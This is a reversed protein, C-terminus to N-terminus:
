KNKLEEVTKQLDEIQKQQSDITQQQSNVKDSLENLKKLIDVGDVILKKTEIIGARIKASVLEAFAGIRTIPGGAASQSANRAPSNDQSVLQYNGNDGVIKLEGTSTFSLPAIQASISAIEAQQDQIAKALLPTLKGYDAMWYGDPTTPLTVAEPYVHYLEQAIFGTHTTQSPDSIFKFNRVNVKMLDSLGFNTPVIDKKLRVDSSTNYATLNGGSFTISGVSTQDYRGFNMLTGTANGGAVIGVGYGLLSGYTNAFTAVYNLAVPSVVQLPTTPGTTGIGVKGTDMVVSSSSNLPRLYLSGTAAQVMGNAGDTTYLYGGYAYINGIVQLKQTPATTGIGVNGSSDIRLQETANTFFSMANNANNYAIRGITNSDTDGMALWSESAPNSIVAMTNGGSDMVARIGYSTGAVDLKYGPVTTGIGVNGANDIRMRENSATTNNAITAFTIRGGQATSTFDQEATFWIVASNNGSFGPTGDTYYGRAAISGLNNGSLTQTPSGQTGLAQRLVVNAAAAYREFIYPGGIVHLVGAPTTTGIGVYGNGLVTLRNGGTLTYSCGGCAVVWSTSTTLSTNSAITSITHTEGSVTITDGVKFTNTFQTDAGTCTTSICSVTGPGTTPQTVQFSGTPATTGIGVNGGTNFYVDWASQLAITQTGDVKYLWLNANGSTGEYISFLSNSNASNVVRLATQDTGSSKIDLKAGPVTTGIGVSSAFYNTGGESYISYNSTTAGSQNGIYLGYLNTITGGSSITPANINVGKAAGISAGTGTSTISVNLGQAGYTSATLGGGNSAVLASVSGASIYRSFSSSTLAQVNVDGSFGTDTYWLSAANNRRYVSFAMGYANTTDNSYLGTAFAAPYPNAAFSGYITNSVGGDPGVRAIDSGNSAQFQLLNATQSSSNAKIIQGITADAGTKIALQAGPVTTGIGVNGDSKITMARTYSIANGATGSGAVNFGIIGTASDFIMQNAYQSKIYNGGTGSGFNAGIYGSNVDQQLAFVSGLQLPNLPATTGIGVNGSSSDVYMIDKTGGTADVTTFKYDVSSAGTDVLTWTGSYVTPETALSLRIGDGNAVGVELKKNPGTMGIGVSAPFSYNGAGTNAGFDGSSVNTASIKTNSLIGTKSMQFVPAAPTPTGAGPREKIYFNGSADSGWIYNTTQAQALRPKLYNGSLLLCATIFLSFATILPFLYHNPLRRDKKKNPLSM